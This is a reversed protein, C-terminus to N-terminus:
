VFDDKTTGISVAYSKRNSSRLLRVEINLRELSIVGLKCMCGYGVERGPPVPFSPQSYTSM